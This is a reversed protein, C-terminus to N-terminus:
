SVERPASDTGVCEFLLNLLNTLTPKVAGRIGVRLVCSAEFKIKILSLEKCARTQAYARKYAHLELGAPLLGEM